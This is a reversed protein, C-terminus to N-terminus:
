QKAQLTLLWSYRALVRRLEEGDDTHLAVPFRM